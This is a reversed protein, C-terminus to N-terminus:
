LNGREAIMAIATHYCNNSWSGNEEQTSDLKAAAKRNDLGLIRLVLSGWALALPSGDEFMDRQLAELDELKYPTPDSALLALIAVATQPARAPLTTDFMVPNGVNWGGGECRRQKLYSVAREIRKGVFQNGKENELALMALSTPEVWGLEGPYWPWSYVVPDNTDILEDLKSFDDRNGLAKVNVLWEVGRRYKDDFISMKSLALLAWATQWGSEDDDAVYGWGGDDHQSLRLWQLGAEVMQTAQQQNRLALLVAATVETAPYYGSYYGWGGSTDQSLHLFELASVM